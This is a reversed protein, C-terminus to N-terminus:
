SVGPKAKAKPKPKAKAKPKTRKKTKPKSRRRPRRQYTWTVQEQEVESMTFAVPGAPVLLRSKPIDIALDDLPNGAMRLTTGEHINRRRHRLGHALRLLVSAEIAPDAVCLYMRTFFGFQRGGVKGAELESTGVAESVWPFSRVIRSIRRINNLQYAAIGAMGLGGFLGIFRAWQGGLGITRGDILFRTLTPDYTVDVQRGLPYESLGYVEFRVSYDLNWGDPRFGVTVKDKDRKLWWRRSERDVVRGVTATGTRSLGEIEARRQAEAQDSIGLLVISLCAGAIALSRQIRLQRVARSGTIAPQENILLSRPQFQRRRWRDALLAGGALTSGVALWIVM